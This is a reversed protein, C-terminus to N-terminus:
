AAAKAAQQWLLVTARCSPCGVSVCPADPQEGRNLIRVRAETGLQVRGFTYTCPRPAQRRDGRHDARRDLHGYGPCTIWDGARYTRWHSFGASGM